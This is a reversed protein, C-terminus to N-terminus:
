FTVILVGATVAIQYLIQTIDKAERLWAIRDIEEPVVITDGPDLKKSMLGRRWFGRTQQKSLATGDVKLIYITDEDALHTSGGAKNLYNSVTHERDFIFATQNYVAGIVQVQQPREPIVLHDGEELVIDSPSNQFRALEDLRIAMRGKAKASRMKAILAKRQEMSGQHQQAAETSLASEITVASKSLLQQELRDIADDIQRQQLARVSERTFVSGKLYANDTYGGARAILSSLREGKKSTYTGPFRVEGEIQVTRYREWEPVTQVSLHDDEQLVLNDDLNGEIAQRLNIRVRKVVPGEATPAIRTLEASEQFAFYKLGGALNLLDSIRMQRAWAYEGPQNVAGAISVKRDQSLDWRDFIRVRDMPELPLDAAEKREVVAATFDFSLKEEHFDPAVRRIIMGEKLYSDPHEPRKLGGALNLLDSIRMQRAWAYEGPQNVAGAISVKRDQSLDWRDFIRVRDMPELPLDAAEKREVVAATFDFALKEEHFDPAVRRIIMGERLYSEPHEPRKLGGALNLLDSLKMNKRYEYDGPKNVAGDIQVTKKEILDWRNFIVIKDNPHLPINEGRDGELFLNDLRISLYEKHHDPPVMREILAFELVTEPLLDRDSQVLDLFRLGAKWEYTGPRVVNGKLVVSNTIENNISFIKVLDGDMLPIDSAESLTEFNVDLVTKATNEFIREVQLRQLYGTANVGGAMEVLKLLTMKGKTEYIAPTKVNGAIGVLSGITPIFIVDESMLRIDSGKDGKLLLDYLDFHVITEGKRKVMINRMSGVKSPGGAAFLANILSSFSSLTYSGPRLAKGVVFLRISRLQGMSVNMKVESPNYFRSFEKRLFRKAESFSLGALHLTGFQPLVVKGDRDIIVVHDVNVKGWINIRLEDGPGLLYDPGVPIIDVPAFTSPPGRFLEYGFQEIDLSVSQPLDGRLYAEFQSREPTKPVEAEQDPLAADQDKPTSKVTPPTPADAPLSPDTQGQRAQKELLEKGKQIEQPSLSEIAKVANQAFAMESWFSFILLFILSVRFPHIRFFDFHFLVFPNESKM